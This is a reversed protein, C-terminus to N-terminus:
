PHLYSRLYASMSGQKHVGERMEELAKPFVEVSRSGARFPPAKLLPLFLM